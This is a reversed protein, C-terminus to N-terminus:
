LGYKSFIAEVESGEALEGREIERDAETLDAEEESTLKYIGDGGGIWSLILRAVDDQREASLHRVEILARELLDTM